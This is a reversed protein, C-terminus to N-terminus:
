NPVVNLFIRSNASLDPSVDMAMGAIEQPAIPKGTASAALTKISVIFPNLGSKEFKRVMRNTRISGFATFDNASSNSAEGVIESRRFLSSM